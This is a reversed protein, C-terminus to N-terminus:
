FPLEDEIEPDDEVVRRSTTSKRRRHLRLVEIIAEPLPDYGDSGPAVEKILWDIYGPDTDQLQSVKYGKNRGFNVIADRGDSALTFRKDRRLDKKTKMKDVDLKGVRDREDVVEAVDDEVLRKARPEETDTEEDDEHSVGSRLLARLEELTPM